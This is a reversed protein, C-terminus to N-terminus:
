RRVVVTGAALDHLGRGNEDFVVAPVVLLILLTRLVVAGVGARGGAASVVRLRFLRHGPGHGLTSVLAVQVAAYVLLPGFPSLSALFAGAVLVALLWDVALAGARPLLGAVSGPGEAPLGLAAGRVRPEGGGDSQEVSRAM